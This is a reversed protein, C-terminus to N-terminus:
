RRATTSSTGQKRARRRVAVDIALQSVMVRRGGPFNLKDVPPFGDCSKLERALLFEPEATSRNRAVFIVGAAAFGRAEPAKLSTACYSTSDLGVKLSRFVPCKKRGKKSYEMSLPDTLPRNPDCFLCTHSSGSPQVEM